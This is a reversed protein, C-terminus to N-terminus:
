LGNSSHVTGNFEISVRVSRGAPGSRNKLVEVRAEYGRVDRHHHIWRERTVRLRVAAYHAVASLSASPGAGTEHLFLLVMESRALPKLVRGLAAAVAGSPTRRLRPAQGPDDWLFDPADLVVVAVGRSHVLAEAMALGEQLDAPQGIWLRSLDLGCRYAYDPDLHGTLDVYAVTDGQGQARALCKYTITTKGSTAPGLLECVSGRPLGGGLIEDLAQFGTPVHSSDAGRAAAPPRGKVLSQSGYQRQISAVAADLQRQRKRKKGL